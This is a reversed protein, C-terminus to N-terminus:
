VDEKNEEVEILQKRKILQLKEVIITATSNKSLIHAQVVTKEGDGFIIHHM